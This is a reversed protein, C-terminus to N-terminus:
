GYKNAFRKMFELLAEIAELPLANYSSIRIGGVSRHGKLGIFGAQEAEQAFLAELEKKQPIHVVINNYSRHEPYVPAHYFGSSDIYTYLLEAKKKQRKQITEVGGQELLWETILYAVYIAFVPPTNYASDKELHSKYQFIKPVNEPPAEILGRRVIVLTLGAIGFNKQAGAFILGFDEVQISRSFLDSSMDAVLPSPPHPFQRWQTGYITNNSALYVYSANSHFNVEELSPLKVFGSEEGSAVVRCSVLRSMEELAKKTWIGTHIVEPSSKTASYLNLPIMAFQQSAGGQLFLIAHSDPVDLLQRINNQLSKVLHQFPASRHSIEMVSCGLGEYNLLERQIRELVTQPLTSPGPNFNYVRKQM